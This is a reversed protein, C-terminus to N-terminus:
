RRQCRFWLWRLLWVLRLRWGGSQGSINNCLKLLGSRACWRRRRRGCLDAFWRRRQSWSWRYEHRRQWSRGRRWRCRDAAIRHQVPQWRHGVRRRRWHDRDACNYDDAAPHSGCWWRRRRRGAGAGMAAGAGRWAGAWRGAGAGMAGGGWRAAEPKSSISSSMGNQNPGDLNKLMWVRKGRFAPKTKGPARRYIGHGQRTGSGQQPTKDQAQRQGHEAPQSCGQAQDRLLVVRGLGAAEGVVDADRGQHAMRRQHARQALRLVEAGYAVAVLRWVAQHGIVHLECANAGGRVGEIGVQEAFAIGPSRVVFRGAGGVAHPPANAM